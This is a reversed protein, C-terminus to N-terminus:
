KCSGNSLFSPIQSYTFIISILNEEPDGTYHTKGQLLNGQISKALTNLLTSFYLLKKYESLIIVYGHLLFILHCVILVLLVYKFQIPLFNQSFICSYVYINFSLKQYLFYEM